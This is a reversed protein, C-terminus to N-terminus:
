NVAEWRLKLLRARAWPLLRGATEVIGGLLTRVGTKFKTPYNRRARILFRERTRKPERSEAFCYQRTRPSFYRSFSEPSIKGEYRRGLVRSNVFIRRARYQQNKGPNNRSTEKFHMKWIPWREGIAFYRNSTKRRRKWKNLLASMAFELLNRERLIVRVYNTTQLKRMSSKKSNTRSNDYKRLRLLSFETTRVGPHINSEAFSLAGGQLSTAFHVRPSIHKKWTRAIGNGADAYTRESYVPQHIYTRAHTCKTKRSVARERDV